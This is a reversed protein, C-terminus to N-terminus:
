ILAYRVELRLAGVPPSAFPIGFFTEVKKHGHGHLTEVLGRVKGTDTHRISYENCYICVFISLYIYVIINVKMNVKVNTFTNLM